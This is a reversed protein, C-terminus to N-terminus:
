RKNKYDKLYYYHNTNIFVIKKDEFFVLMSGYDKIHKTLADTEDIEKKLQLMNKKLYNRIYSYEGYEGGTEGTWKKLEGDSNYEFVVEKLSIDAFTVHQMWLKLENDGHEWISDRDIGFTKVLYDKTEEKTSGWKLDGFEFESFSIM